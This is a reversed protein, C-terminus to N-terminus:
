QQTVLPFTAGENEFPFSAIIPFERHPPYRRRITHPDLDLSSDELGVHSSQQGSFSASANAGCSCVLGLSLSILTM